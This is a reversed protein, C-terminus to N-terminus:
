REASELSLLFLKKGDRIAITTEDVLRFTTNSNSGNYLIATNQGGRTDLEFVIIDNGYVALLLDDREPYFVIDTIKKSGTDFISIFRECINTGNCFYQPTFSPEGVWSAYLSSGTQSILISHKQLLPISKLPVRTYDQTKPTFKKVNAQEFLAVTKKYLTPNEKETLPVLEIQIPILFPNVATVTQSRVTIKKKWTIYDPHRIEISHIGPIIGQILNNKEFLMTQQVPAADLLIQGDIGYSHVYIGGTETLNKSGLRYGTSYLVVLPVTVVFVGVSLGLLILRLSYSLHTNKSQM